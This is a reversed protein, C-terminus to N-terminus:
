LIMPVEEVKTEKELLAQLDLVAQNRQELDKKLVITKLRTHLTYMRFQKVISFNILTCQTQKKCMATKQMEQNTM